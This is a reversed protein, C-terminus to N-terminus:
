SVTADGSLQNSNYNYNKLMKAKLTLIRKISKRFQNEREKSSKIYKVLQKKVETLENITFLGYKGKKVPGFEVHSFLLIDHGANFADKAIDAFSKGTDNKYKIIAGMNSLDDTMIVQDKYNLGDIKETKFYIGKSSRLLDTVFKKSFTVPPEDVGMFRIFIHNTMVGDLFKNFSSYQTLDTKLKEINGEYTPADYNHPNINANFGFGPFHKGFVLVGGERLGTIYYSATCYVRKPDSGFSRNQLTTNTEGQSTTDIDLVPGLIANIGVSRLEYGIFQGTNRILQPDQTTALTMASPPHILGKNIFSYGPGEFDGAIILPIRLSTNNTLNQLYHHFNIIQKIIKEPSDEENDPFYYNYSNTIVNGIHLDVILKDLNKNGEYSTTDAPLGVMLMQGVGDEISISAALNNIDKIEKDTLQANKYKFVIFFIAFIVIGLIIIFIVKRSIIIM